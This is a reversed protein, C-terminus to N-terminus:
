FKYAKVHAGAYAGDFLEADIQSFIDRLNKDKAMSEVIEKTYINVPTIEINSFGVRKLIEEYEKVSLAGAICGAWMEVNQKISDPVDKLIVIDAIALRGGKKLVRFAEKLM